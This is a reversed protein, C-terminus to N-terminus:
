KENQSEQKTQPMTLPNGFIDNTGTSQGLPAMNLPREYVDGVPGINNLDEFGRIENSNLFSWNRAIAYAQYRDLLTGRLLADANFRIFYGQKREEETLYAREYEKEHRIIWSMLSYQVYERGQQEINSFTARDLNGIMHPPVRYIGCIESQQFKRTELFQAEDATITLKSFEMGYPLVVTSGSNLKSSDNFEQAFRKRTEEDKLQGGVTQKIYSAPRGGGRFVNKGFKEADKTLELTDKAFQIPSLGKIGNLTMGVVHKIENRTFIRPKGTGEDYKYVLKRDENINLEVRDTDLPISSIIRGARDRLIQSYSDGRLLLSIMGAGREAIAGMYENPSESLIRAVRHDTVTESNHSDTRKKLHIPMTSIDESLARICSFVTAIRLANRPTAAFHGDILGDTVWEGTRESFSRKTLKKFWNM